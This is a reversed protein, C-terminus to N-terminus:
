LDRRTGGRVSTGGFPTAAQLSHGRGHKPIFVAKRDPQGSALRDEADGLQDRLHIRALFGRGDQMELGHDPHSPDVSIFLAWGEAPLARGSLAGLWMEGLKQWDMGLAVGESIPASM